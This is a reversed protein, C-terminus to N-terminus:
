AACVWDFVLQRNAKTVRIPKPPAVKPGYFGLDTLMEEAEGIYKEYDIDDPFEDPLRMCEIAGDSKPVKAFNGTTPHPTAKFIPDGGLGYYFRVVKGLYEGRWTAGGTAKIVTVFQRIDRCARITEAVPTGDKIRALAADSCITTQPNKMLQGRVPDFDDPHANWPNGLPGKRKHGGDAKLAFYSNVSQNYIAKYEGFELDFSTDKEWQECVSALLSPKLRDGKLGAYRERPCYFLVGDTNGSVVRIGAKEAREILMLLTLQGTLTVSILLHPAYLVSYRSGLKGYVGNLSIKLGKDKVKCAELEAELAAKREPDILGKLEDKIAKARKKAKLRESKIEGYVTLFHKGLAKPYLGLLLIIAPYQSAVDADVLVHTDNSVVARNSETSHLGGIGMQYTTEGITFSADALWPPMDVKGEDNIIFDTERIRDVMVQLEPTEFKMFAPVPYRFTTGPKVSAKQAKEGSLYEVRKKVIAEGIQSDSKCIFNQGYAPGIARRLELPEALANWLNHTADLDSHLCYNGIIDMQEFTPRLDPDFPLDQLQKGQMRGNLTKLSAIANPQPEILDIHKQKLEYPIRIGLFDEVDWWRIRGKIIGDSARKLMENTVHDQLSYWLMPLDYPLSNFGVTTHRLLVSRVYDRDYHPKRTSFEVGVRKGDEERKFGIYFFDHFTEIDTFIVSM